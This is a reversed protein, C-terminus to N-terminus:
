SSSASLHRRLLEMALLCVLQRRLSQSGALDMPTEGLDGVLALLVGKRFSVGMDSGSFSPAGASVWGWLVSSGGVVEGEFSSESRAEGQPNVSSSSGPTELWEGGSIMM